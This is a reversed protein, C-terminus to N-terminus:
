FLPSQHAPPHPPPSATTARRPPYARRTQAPPRGARPGLRLCVPLLHSLSLRWLPLEGVRRSEGAALLDGGVRGVVEELWGGREALADRHRLRRRRDVEEVVGALGVLPLRP